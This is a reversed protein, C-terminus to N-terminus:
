HGDPDFTATSLGTFNLEMLAEHAHSQCYPERALYLMRVALEVDSVNALPPVAIMAHWELVLMQDDPELENEHSHGGPERTYCSFGLSRIGALITRLEVPPLDTIRRLLDESIHLNEPLEASCSNGVFAYLVKREDESMRRLAMFFAQAKQLAVKREEPDKLDLAEFLRDPDPPLFDTKQRPGIKEEILDALGRPDLKRLDEYKVTKRLGPIETDDFRAPLVYGTLRLRGSKLTAVSTARGSRRPTTRQHLFYATGPLEATSIPLTSM